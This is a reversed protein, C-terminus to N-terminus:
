DDEALLALPSQEIGHEVFHRVVEQINALSLEGMLVDDPGRPFLDGPLSEDTTSWRTRSERVQEPTMLSGSYRRGSVHVEVDVSLTFNPPDEHAFVLISHTSEELRHFTGDFTWMHDTHGLLHDNM